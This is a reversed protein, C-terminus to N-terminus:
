KPVQDDEDYVLFTHDKQLETNLIVASVSILASSASTDLYSKLIAEDPSIANESDWFGQWSQPDIEITAGGCCACSAPHFIFQYM